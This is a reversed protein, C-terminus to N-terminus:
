KLYFNFSGSKCKESTEVIIYVTGQKLAGGVSDVDDGSGVSFLETKTGDCDYFVKVSGSDLKASYGVSKNESDCKLQFVMTGEFSSFSMSANKATNTHVFGVANYRSRYRNCGSLTLLLSLVITVIFTTFLQKKM